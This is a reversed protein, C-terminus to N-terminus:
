AITNWFNINAGNDLLLNSKPLDNHAAAYHLPTSGFADTAMIDAGNIILINAIKLNSTLHLATKSFENKADVEAGHDILVKVYEFTGCSAAIHMPTNGVENKATVDAGNQILIEAIRLDSTLHLSTDNFANRDHVNAGYKFLVRVVEERDQIAAEILPTIGFEDKATVDAGNQILIEAMRSDKVWYLSTREVDM